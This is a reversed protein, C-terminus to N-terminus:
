LKQGRSGLSHGSRGLVIDQSLGPVKSFEGTLHPGLNENFMCVTVLLAWDSASKLETPSLPTQHLKARPNCVTRPAAPSQGGM